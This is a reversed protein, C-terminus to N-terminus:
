IKNYEKASINELLKSYTKKTTKQNVDCSSPIVEEWKYQKDASVWDLAKRNVEQLYDREYFSIFKM